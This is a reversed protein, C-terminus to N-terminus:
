HRYEETYLIENFIVADQDRFLIYGTTLGDLGASVYGGNPMICFAYSDTDYPPNNEYSLSDRTEWLVNGERDTKMLFGWESYWGMDPDYEHCTGNVVFGSDSDININGATYSYDYYPTYFPQYNQIWGPQANLALFPLTSLIFCFASFLFIRQSM